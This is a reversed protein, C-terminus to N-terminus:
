SGLLEGGHLVPVAVESRVDPRAARYDPDALVDARSQGDRPHRREPRHHRRRARDRPVPQRLRGRRGDLAPWDRRAPVRLRPHRRVDTAVDEVVAQMVEAVPKRGTSAASSGSCGELQDARAGKRAALGSPAAVSADSAATWRTCRSAPSSRWPRASWSTSPTAPRLGFPGPHGRAPRGPEHRGGRRHARRHLLGADPGRLHLRPHRAPTGIQADLVAPDSLGAAALAVLLVVRASRGASWGTPPSGRPSPAGPSSASSRSPSGSVVVARGYRGTPDALLHAALALILMLALTLAAWRFEAIARDAPWMSRDLGIGLRIAIPISHRRRTTGIAAGTALDRTVTASM